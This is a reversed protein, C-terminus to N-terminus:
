YLTPLLFNLHVLSLNKTGKFHSEILPFESSVFVSSILATYLQLNRSLLLVSIKQPYSYSCIFGLSTITVQSKKSGVGVICSMVRWSPRTDRMINIDNRHDYNGKWRPAKILHSIDCFLLCFCNFRPTKMGLLHRKYKRTFLLRTGGSKGLSEFMAEQNNLLLVEVMNSGSVVYDFSENQM